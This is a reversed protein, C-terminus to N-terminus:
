LIKVKLSDSFYTKLLNGDGHITWVEQPNVMSITKLIDDWDAHDSIYLSQDNGKQLNEWGSAFIKVVNPAKSYSNFTLPPVMYVQNKTQQKMIKRDYHQYNGLDIGENKYLQHIPYISYHLLVNKQPCIKHILQTIRQAKGLGYVGLLINGEIENLKDIEQEPNPHKVAPNAFTTETILVNAQCFEVPQCTEDAQLKYDGTFLYVTNEFEMKVMASGLIHGASLFTISVKEIKFTQHYSYTNFDKGANKKLRLQMIKHTAPTCFVKQNGPRAHDGHAHSIVANNVPLLPDLHFDGYPCYLGQPTQVLFDDKM